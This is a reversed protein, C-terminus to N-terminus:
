WLTFGDDGDSRLPDEGHSLVRPMVGKAETTHLKANPSGNIYSPESHHIICEPTEM